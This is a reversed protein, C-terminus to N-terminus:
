QYIRQGIYPLSHPQELPAEEPLQSYLPPSVYKDDPCGWWMSHEIMCNRKEKMEQHTYSSGDVNHTNGGTYGSYGSCGTLISTLMLLIIILIIFVITVKIKEFFTM